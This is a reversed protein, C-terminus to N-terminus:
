LYFKKRRDKLLNNFENIKKNRAKKYDLEVFDILKGDDPGRSLIEGKYSIIQSRGTFTFDDEGRSERGIRNATIAFVRNELCRTIMADQCYPLVLNAPHAIIDAGLVAL